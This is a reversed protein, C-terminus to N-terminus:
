WMKSNGMSIMLFTGLRGMSVIVGGSCCGLLCSHLLTPFRCYALAGAMTSSKAALRWSNTRIEGSKEGVMATITMGLRPAVETKKRSFKETAQFPLWSFAPKEMEGPRRPKCLPQILKPEATKGNATVKGKLKEGKHPPPRTQFIVTVSTGVFADSLFFLSSDVM